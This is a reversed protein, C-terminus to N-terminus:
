AAKVLYDFGSAKLDMRSGSINDWQTKIADKRLQEHDIVYTLAQLLGYKSFAADPTLDQDRNFQTLIQQRKEINHRVAVESMGSNQPYIAKLFENVSLSNVPETALKELVAIHRDLMLWQEALEEMYVNLKDFAGKLHSFKKLSKNAKGESEAVRLTNACVVRENHVLARYAGAGLPNCLLERCFSPSKDGKVQFEKAKLQIVATRSDFLTMVGEIQIDPCAKLIGNELIEALKLNSEAEFKSGVADVLVHGTDKRILSFANVKTNVGENNTYFLPVKEIEWNFVEKVQDISVPSDQVIFKPNRHWLPSGMFYGRDSVEIGASM